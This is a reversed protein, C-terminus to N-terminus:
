LWSVACLVTSGWIGITAWSTVFNGWKWRVHHDIVTNVATHWM